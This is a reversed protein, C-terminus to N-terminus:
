DTVTAAEEGVTAQGNTNICNLESWGVKRNMLRNAAIEAAPVKREVGPGLLGFGGGDERKHTNCWLYIM